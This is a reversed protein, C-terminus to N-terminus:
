GYDLGFIRHELTTCRVRCIILHGFHRGLRSFACHLEISLDYNTEIIRRAMINSYTTCYIWEYLYESRIPWIYSNVTWTGLPHLIASPKWSM